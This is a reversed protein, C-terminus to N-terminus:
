KQRRPKNEPKGKKAKHDLLDDTTVGFAEALKVLAELRPERIGAEWNQLTRLPVGVKAAAATQTWGKSQRLQRINEKFGM